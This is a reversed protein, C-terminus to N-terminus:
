KKADVEVSPPFLKDMTGKATRFQQFALVSVVLLLAVGLTNALWKNRFRIPFSRGNMSILLFLAVIPLILGNAVQAVLIVQDPSKGNAVFVVSLGILMIVFMVTRTRWDDLKDGWGLCGAAVIGAALPATIASTVGAALLGICFFWQCASGLVPRLQESIQSLGDLQIGKQFFAASATVLISLTILGGLAISVSTDKRAQSVNKAITESSDDKEHWHSVATRSHLFLNYPVVTTGLLGIVLVLSGADFQPRVMASLLANWDPQVILMAAVFLGSMLAVLVTLVIQILDLRGAWLVMSAVIAIFLALAGSDVGTLIGLGTTAGTINGGQYAANGILIAILVLWTAPMSFWRKRDGGRISEALDRGTVIGLRAAMEQFVIAAFVSLVVVWVLGFGYAAGAKSATTVTGPGIFAATVLMGPGWGRKRKTKTM